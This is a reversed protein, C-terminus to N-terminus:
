FVEKKVAAVQYKLTLHEDFVVGLNRLQISLNNVLQNLKLNSSHDVNRM